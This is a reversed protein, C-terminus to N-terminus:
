FCHRSVLYEDAHPLINTRPLRFELLSLSLKGVQGRCAISCRHECECSLADRCTQLVVLLVPIAKKRAAVSEERAGLHGAHPDVCSRSSHGLGKGVLAKSAISTAGRAAPVELGAQRGTHPAEHLHTVAQWRLFPCGGGKSPDGSGTGSRCPRHPVMLEVAVCYPPCGKTLLLKRLGERRSSWWWRSTRGTTCRYLLKASTVLAQLFDPYKSSLSRRLHGWPHHGRHGRFDAVQHESFM